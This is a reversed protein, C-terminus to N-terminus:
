DDPYIIKYYSQLHHGCNDYNLWFFRSHSNRNNPVTVRQNKDFSYTGRKFRSTWGDRVGLRVYDSSSAWVHRVRAAWYHNKNWTNGYQYEINQGSDGAITRNFIDLLWGFDQGKSKMNNLATLEQKFDTQDDFWWAALGNWADIEATGSYSTYGKYHDSKYDTSWGYDVTMIVGAVGGNYERVCLWYYKKGKVTECLVDGTAFKSTAANEPWASTPVITLTTVVDKLEPMDITIVALEGPQDSKQYTVTGYEGLNCISYNEDGSVFGSTEDDIALLTNYFYDYAADQDKVSCSLATPTVMNLAKGFKAVLVNAGDTSDVTCLNDVIRSALLEETYLSDTDEEIADDNDEDDNQSCGSFMVTICAGFFLFAFLSYKMKM